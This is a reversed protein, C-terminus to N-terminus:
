AVNLPLLPKVAQNKAFAAPSQGFRRKFERSFTSAQQYGSEAAVAKVSIGEHVSARAQWWRLEALWREPTQHCTEQFYRELTRSSVGCLRAMKTISWNAKRALEPWDQIKVLRTNM